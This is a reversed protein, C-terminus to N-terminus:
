HSAVGASAEASAPITSNIFNRAHGLLQEHIEAPPEAKAFKVMDSTNLLKILEARLEEPVRHEMQEGIETTTSELALIGFRAELYERLIFTLETHYDVVLGKQWLQAEELKRFKELALVHPQIEAAPAPPPAQPAQKKRRLLRWLIVSVAIAGLLGILYPIFDEARLPEDIIPKLPMLATTDPPTLNVRLPLIETYLTHVVGQIEFNVPIAPIQFYGSDWATLLLDKELTIVKDNARTTDWPSSSLLEIAKATDIVQIGPELLLVGPAYDVKLRVTRKGGVFMSISDLTAEVGVQARGASPAFFIILTWFFLFFPRRM